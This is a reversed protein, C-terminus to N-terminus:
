RQYTVPSLRAIEDPALAVKWLACHALWGSMPSSSASSSQSGIGSWAATLAGVWVGTYLQTAGQQIGNLYVIIQNAAKNWTLAMVAWTLFSQGSLTPNVPTGGATLLWSLLNNTSHKFLLIRNNADTGFAAFVHFNGDTWFAANLPKFWVVASGALPDFPGDLTAVPLSVRGGGFNAALSGDGIGAQGLTVTGAYTGDANTSSVDDAVTGSMEGLPWYGILNSPQTSLILQAATMDPSVVQGFGRGGLPDGFVRFPRFGM